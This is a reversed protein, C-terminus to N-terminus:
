DTGGTADAALDFTSEPTATEQPRRTSRNRMWGLPTWGGSFMRAVGFLILVIVILVLAGSWARLNEARIPERVLRYVFLPLDDQPGNFPNWNVKNSSGVDILAPATEGVVRAMGLVVATIIGARATPLVVRRVMRWEHGGLALSGERLGGPVLRLMVECTRTVTPMMSISLALAVAFGSKPEGSKLIWIAYIFLAALISPIGNMAEVFIRVVRALRGRTESLFVATGLGLPVSIILALGLQELTGVIAALGGGATPPSLPGVHRLDNTFFNARLAKLGRYTVYGLIVALAAIIVLALGGILVAMVRDRAAMKDMRQRQVIWYFLLFTGFWCLFFGFGGSLHTLQEYVLWTACLASLATGALEVWDTRNWARVRIRGLDIREPDAASSDPQPGGSHDSGPAIVDTM